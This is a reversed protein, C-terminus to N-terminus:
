IKFRGINLLQPLYLRELVQLAIGRPDFERLMLDRGRQGYETRLQPSNLLTSIERAFGEVDGPQILSGTVGHRVVEPIGGIDHAIIPVKMLQAEVATLGLGENFSPFLCLTSIGLLDRIFEQSGGGTVIFADEQGYRRIEEHLRQLAGEETEPGILVVKFPGQFSKRVRAIVQPLYSQGKQACIRAHYLVLPCDDDIALSARLDRDAGEPVREPSFFEPDVPPHVVVSPVNHLNGQGAKSVASLNFAHYVRHGHKLAEHNVKVTSVNHGRLRRELFQLSDTATLALSDKIGFRKRHHRYREVFKSLPNRKPVSSVDKLVPAGHNSAVLGISAPISEAIIRDLESHPEHMHVIHPNRSRLLTLILEANERARSSSLTVPHVHIKGRWHPLKFQYPEREARAVHVVHITIPFHEALIADVREMEQELGGTHISGDPLVHTGYEGHRFRFLTFAPVQDVHMLRNGTLEAWELGVKGPLISFDTQRLTGRRSSFGVLELRIEDSEARARANSTEPVTSPVVQFSSSRQLM